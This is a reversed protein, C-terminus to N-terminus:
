SGSGANSEREAADAEETEKAEREALEAARQEETEKTGSEEAWREREANIAAEDYDDLNIRLGDTLAKEVRALRENHNLKRPPAPEQVHEGM